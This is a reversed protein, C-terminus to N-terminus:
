VRGNAGLHEDSRKPLTSLYAACLALWFPTSRLGMHTLSYVLLGLVLGYMVLKAGRLSLVITLVLLGFGLIGYCFLTSLLSSHIEGHHSIPFRETGGEGAGLVVYRPYAVIRDFGREETVNNVKADTRLLRTEVGRSLASDVVTDAVMFGTALIGCVALLSVAKKLQFMSTAVVSVAIVLLGAFASISNAVVIGAMAALYAFMRLPTVVVKGGDLAVVIAMCCLSYYALQNPNNFFGANRGGYSYGLAVGLLSVALGVVTAWYLLKSFTESQRADWIVSFGFLFNFLYFLPYVLTRPSGSSVFWVFSVCMTVLVFGAWSVLFPPMRRLSGRAAAAFVSSLSYIAIFVDSVQPLGSDFLYLSGMSLGLFAFLWRFRFSSLGSLPLIGARM